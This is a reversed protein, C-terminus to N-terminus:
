NDLVNNPADKDGKAKQKKLKKLIEEHYQIDRDITLKNYTELLEKNLIDEFKAFFRFNLELNNKEIFLRHGAIEMDISEIDKTDYNRHVYNIVYDGKHLLEKLNKIFLELSEKTEQHMQDNTKVDNSM